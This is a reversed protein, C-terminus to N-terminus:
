KFAPIRTLDRISVSQDRGVCVLYVDDVLIKSNPNEQIVMNIVACINDSVEVPQQIYNLRVEPTDGYAFAVTLALM